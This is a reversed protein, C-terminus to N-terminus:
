RSETAYVKNALLEGLAVLGYLLLGCICLVVIAAMSVQTDARATSFIILYGLGAQATIFEGIIVGIIALTVAIKMGSFIYPLAAPFRVSAFIQWETATLGRCLRVMSKDVSLLGATTAIVVPFFAIFVSFAIRSQSGIGLWIIFLPALAIKPILQFFVLNPYLAERATDSYTIAIALIVGVVTAVIFSVASEVTTPVAQTLLVDYHDFIYEIIAVPSPLVVSPVNALTVYAQWGVLVALALGIPLVVPRM